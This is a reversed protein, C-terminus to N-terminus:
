RYSKPSPVAGTTVLAVEASCTYPAGHSHVTFTVAVLTAPCCTWPWCVAFTVGAAGSAVAKVAM